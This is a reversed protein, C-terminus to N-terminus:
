HEKQPNEPESLEEQLITSNRRSKSIEFNSDPLSSVVTPFIGNAPCFRRGSIFFLPIVRQSGAAFGYYHHLDTVQKPGASCAPRRLCLACRLPIRTLPLFACRLFMGEGFIDRVLFM